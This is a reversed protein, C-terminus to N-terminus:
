TVGLCRGPHQPGLFANDRYWVQDYFLFDLYEFIDATEGTVRSLPICGVWEGSEIDRESTHTLSMFDTFWRMRYHWLRLPVCKRIMIRYWKKRIEPITGEAPNQKHLDPEIIHYDIDNKPIQKM